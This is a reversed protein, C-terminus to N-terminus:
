WQIYLRLHTKNKNLIIQEYQIYLEAFVAQRTKRIIAIIYDSPYLMHQEGYIVRSYYTYSKETSFRYFM